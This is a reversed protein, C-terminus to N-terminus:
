GDKLDPHSILYCSHLGEFLIPYSNSCLNQLLQKDRRSYVNYPLLSFHSSLGKERRYYIVEECLNNLEVAHQRGYEFCHLHIKFGCRSLTYLKYYIDIM